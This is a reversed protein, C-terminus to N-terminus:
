SKKICRLDSSKEPFNTCPKKGLFLCIRLGKQEESDVAVLGVESERLMGNRESRMDFCCQDSSFVWRLVVIGV